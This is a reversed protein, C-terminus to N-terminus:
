CNLYSWKLMNLKRELAEKLLGEHKVWSHNDEIRKKNRQHTGNGIHAHLHGVQLIGFLLVFDHAVKISVM